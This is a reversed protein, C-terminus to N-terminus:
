ISEVKIRFNTEFTKDLSIDWFLLICSGQFIKEFGAESISITEIPFRWVSTEKDFSFVLKMKTWKDVMSMQRIGAIEGSSGLGKEGLDVSPINYFGNMGDCCPLILNFEVGFKLDGGVWGESPHGAGKKFPPQPSQTIRYKVNMENDEVSIKKEVLVSQGKVEGIRSLVIQSRRGSASSERKFGAPASEQSTPMAWGVGSKTEYPKNFFDGIEEYVSMRFNELTEDKKLFHDLLSVRQYKDFFLHRELGEEKSITLEHISKAEGTHSKHAQAKVRDHYGEYWRSLTNSLNVTKPRYDLEIISGGNHPSFFLNLKSTRVFIEPFTDADFDKVIHHIPSHPFRPIPSNIEREGSRRKETEKSTKGGREELLNEAKILNEYVATRLHPMYLGGFIGHWYADNCQAMYLHHTPSDSFPLLPSPKDGNGRKGTEGNRQVEESVMLMRKHMWNAEPYKAFFNRWFGGQLFRRIREGDPWSKVENLLNTYTESAEPPLAWEGMEMYSTTPLYVRGIPENNDMYESFTVPTILDKNESVTELFKKLWEEKYVWQHTGPWTGFKEGDDAFIAVANNGLTDVWAINEMFMNVPEFPIIYRLRESGPFVKLSNGLDETTYYGALAEKRLGAKIFHYDDVVIYEIGAQRLCPPLQPEWIREALWMGRPRKNFIDELKDSMMTIQGVRDRVPIVALIPEYYGGGLMEVQGKKVMKCLM